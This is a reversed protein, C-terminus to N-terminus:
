NQQFVVVRVQVQDQPRLLHEQRCQPCVGGEPLKGQNLQPAPAQKQVQWKSHGCLDKCHLKYHSMSEKNSERGVGAPGQEWVMMGRESSELPM